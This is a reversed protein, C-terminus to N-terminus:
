GTYLPKTAERIAKIEDGTLARDYLIVNGIKGYFYTGRNPDGGIMFNNDNLNPDTTTSTSGSQDNVYVTLSSGDYVGAVFSWQGNPISFTPSFVWTAGDYKGARIDGVDDYDIIYSKDKSLVRAYSEQAGADYIWGLMTYQTLDIDATEVYDDGGDFSLAWSPSDEDTWKPGHVRGHNDEGSFDYTKDGAGNYFLWNGVQNPERLMSPIAVTPVQSPLADPKFEPQPNYKEM